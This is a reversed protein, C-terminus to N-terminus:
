PASYLLQCRRRDPCSLPTGGSHLPVSIPALDDTEGPAQNARWGLLVGIQGTAGEALFVAGWGMPLDRSLQGQWQKLDWAALAQPPCAQTACDSPSDLSVSSRARAGPPILYFPIVAHGGPNAKIREFLDQALRTAVVRQAASRSDADVRLQLGLLGMLAFALLGLAVLAELLAVGAIPTQPKMIRFM